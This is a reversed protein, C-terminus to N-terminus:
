TFSAAEATTVEIATEIVTFEAKTAWVAVGVDVDVGVSSGLVVGVEVGDGVGVEDTVVTVAVVLLPAVTSKESLPFMVLECIDSAVIAVFWALVVATDKVTVPDLPVTPKPLM